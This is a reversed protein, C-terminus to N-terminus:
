KLIYGFLADGIKAKVVETENARQRAKKVARILRDIRGLIGSAQDATLAGSYLTKTRTGVPVDKSIEKVQAPIGVGDKIVAQTLVLPEIVKKTVTVKEDNETKFTGARGNTDPVWARKADLTPMAAVAARFATLKTELGLLMTAPVDRAIVIQGEGEGDDEIVIDAKANQNTAEKQLVADLWRSVHQATWKLREPVTTVIEEKSELVRESSGAGDVVVPDFFTISGLFATGAKFLKETEGLMKNAQGQLDKEVALVEHLKSM